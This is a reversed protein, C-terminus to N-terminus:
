DPRHLRSLVRAIFSQTEPYPPVGGHRTVAAPGANYAALAQPLDGFRDLQGKLYRAGAHINQETDWIDTVGQLAATSPMLQMIGAAGRPSLADPRLNSETEAVALLLDPDLDNARAAEAITRHIASPATSSQSSRSLAVEFHPRRFRAAIEATRAKVAALGAPPIDPLKM